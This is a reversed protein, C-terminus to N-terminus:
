LCVRGSLSDDPAQYEFRFDPALGSLAKNIQGIPYAVASVLTFVILTILM